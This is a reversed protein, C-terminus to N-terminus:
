FKLENLRITRKDIIEGDINIIKYTMEPERKETDFEV